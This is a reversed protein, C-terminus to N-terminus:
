LRGGVTADFVGTEVTPGHKMQVIIRYAGSGPFGYPFGVVNPLTGAGMAMGPMGPMAMDKMPAGPNALMFAAMSVTGTPHIHAFVTGDTKVFAAHGLMGMYLAMDKPAKGGADLLEFQFDTPELSFLCKHRHWIMTYGDPLKFRRETAERADLGKEICAREAAIEGIAESTGVADDGTPAHGTVAPLAVRGVITEPFGNEHVVDAYLHYDGAPLAPLTLQFEGTEVPEPHLHAVVDM